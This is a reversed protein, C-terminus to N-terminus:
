SDDDDLMEETTLVEPNLCGPTQTDAPLANTAAMVKSANYCGTNARSFSSCRFTLLRPGGPLYSRADDM